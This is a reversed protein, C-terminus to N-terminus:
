RNKNRRTENNSEKTLNKIIATKGVIEYELTDGVQWDLEKVLEDPLEIIADGFCNITIVKSTYIKDSM